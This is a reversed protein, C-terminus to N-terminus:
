WFYCAWCIFKCRSICQICYLLLQFIIACPMGYGTTYRVPCPGQARFIKFSVTSVTKSGPCLFLISAKRFHMLFLWEKGWIDDYKHIFLLIIVLHVRLCALAANGVADRKTVAVLREWPHCFLGLTKVVIEVV